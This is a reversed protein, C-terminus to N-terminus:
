AEVGADTVAGLFAALVVARPVHLGFTIAWSQGAIDLPGTLVTSTSMCHLVIPGADADVTFSVTSLGDTVQVPVRRTRPLTALEAEIYAALTTTTSM